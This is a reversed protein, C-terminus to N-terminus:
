KINMFQLIDYFTTKVKQNRFRVIGLRFYRIVEKFAFFENLKDRMLLNPTHEDKQLTFCLRNEELKDSVYVIGEKYSIWFGLKINNFIVSFKFKCDKPKSPLIFVESDRLSNNEISYEAYKTGEVLQGFESKKKNEIFENDAFMEIVIQGNKAVTFQENKKPICDFFIFYPNVISINNGLFYMRTKERGTRTRNVTEYLDLAVEVENTLYRIHSKDIIFEDFIISTVNPYSTSKEQQSVSLALFFGMVKGNCLMTNGQVTLEYKPFKHKIDDFFLARKKLETKYRRVYIWQEGKKIFNKICMEKSGYTKGGGRNSIIFNWIANYSRIRDYSYFM